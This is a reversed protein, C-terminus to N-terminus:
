GGGRRVDTHTDTHPRRNTKFLNVHTNFGPATLIRHASKRKKLVAPDASKHSGYTTNQTMLDRICTRNTWCYAEHQNKHVYSM